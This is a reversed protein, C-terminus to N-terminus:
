SFFIQRRPIRLSYVASGSIRQSVICLRSGTQEGFAKKLRSNLRSRYIRFNEMDLNLIGNHGNALAKKDIRQYIAAVEGSGKLVSEVSLACERCTDPCIEVGDPCAAAKQAFFMYIAFEVPPLTVKKSECSLARNEWDLHVSLPKPAICIASLAKLSASSQLMASPLTERMRFFPLSALIIRVDACDASPYFFSACMKEEPEVLVHFMSDWPRAYCQAALALAASMTKRGGAICFLLECDQDRTLHFVKELCLDFFANSSEENTIDAFSKDIGYDAPTCIDEEALLLSNAPRGLDALLGALRGNPPMLVSRCIERGKETTLIIVRSPFRDQRHLAYLAETIIQPSTGCLSVLIKKM